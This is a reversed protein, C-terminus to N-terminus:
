KYERGKEKKDGNTRTMTRINERSERPRKQRLGNGDTNIRLSAPKRACPLERKHAFAHADKRLLTATRACPRRLRHAPGQTIRQWEQPHPPIDAAGHRPSLPTGRHRGQTHPGHRSHGPAAKRGGHRPGTRHACPFQEGGHPATRADQETGGSFIRHRLPRTETTNFTHKVANEKCSRFHKGIKTPTEAQFFGGYYKATQASTAVKASAKPFDPM